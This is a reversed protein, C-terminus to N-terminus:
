NRKFDNLRQEGGYLDLFTIKLLETPFLCGQSLSNVFLPGLVPTVGTVRRPSSHGALSTGKSSISLQPSRCHFVALPRGSSRSRWFPLFGWGFFLAQAIFDILPTFPNRPSNCTSQLLTLRTPNFHLSNLWEWLILEHFIMPHTSNSLSESPWTALRGQLSCPCRGSCWAAWLGM